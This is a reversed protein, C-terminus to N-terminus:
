PWQACLIAIVPWFITRIKRTSLIVKHCRGWFGIRNKLSHRELSTWRCRRWHRCRRHRRRRCICICKQPKKSSPTPRLFHGVERIILNCWIPGMLISRKANFAIKKRRPLVTLEITSIGIKNVAVTYTWMWRWHYSCDSSPQRWDFWWDRQKSTALTSSLVLSLTKDLIKRSAM